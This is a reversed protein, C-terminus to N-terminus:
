RRGPPLPQVRRATLRGGESDYAALEGAPTVILHLSGEWAAAADASSPRASGTPHSHWFGALELGRNRATEEAAVWEAPDLEFHTERQVSVRNAVRAVATITEARDAPSFLLGCAEEPASECALSVLEARVDGSIWLVDRKPNAAM